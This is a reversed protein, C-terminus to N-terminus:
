AGKEVPPPSPCTWCSGTDTAHLLRWSSAIALRRLHPCCHRLISPAILLPNLHVCMSIYVLQQHTSGATSSGATAMLLHHHRAMAGACSQVEEIAASVSRARSSKSSLREMVAAAHLWSLVWDAALSTRLCPWPHTTTSAGQSTTKSWSQDWRGRLSPAGWWGALTVGTTQITWTSQPKTNTISAHQPCTSPRQPPRRLSLRPTVSSGEGALWGAVRCVRGCWNDVRKNAMSYAVNIVLTIGLQRLVYDSREGLVDKHRYYFVGLAAGLGFLAAATATTTTHPPACTHTFATTHDFRQNSLGGGGRRGKGGGWVVECV